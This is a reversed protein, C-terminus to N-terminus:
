LSGRNEYKREGRFRVIEILGELLLELCAILLEAFKEGRFPGFVDTDWQGNQLKQCEREQDEKSLNKIFRVTEPLYKKLFRGRIKKSKRLRKFKIIM